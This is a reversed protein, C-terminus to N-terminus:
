NANHCFSPSAAAQDSNGRPAQNGTLHMSTTWNRDGALWLTGQPLPLQCPLTLGAGAPSASSWAMLIKSWNPSALEEEAPKRTDPLWLMIMGWDNQLNNLSSIEWLPPQQLMTAEPGGVNFQKVRSYWKHPRARYKVGRGSSSSSLFTSRDGPMAIVSPLLHGRKPLNYRAKGARCYNINTRM